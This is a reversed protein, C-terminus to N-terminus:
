SAQTLSKMPSYQHGLEFVGYATGRRDSGAIVLANDVGKWPNRITQITYAEWKGSILKPDLKKNRILEKVLYSNKLSGIVIINKELGPRSARIGATKGTVNKLDQQFLIAAKNILTEDEHDTYIPAIQLPGAIEYFGNGAKESFPDQSFAQSIGALMNFLIFLFHKM